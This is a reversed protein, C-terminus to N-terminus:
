GVVDPENGALKYTEKEEERLEVEVNEVIEREALGETAVRFKEIGGYKDLVHCPGNRKRRMRRLVRALDEVVPEVEEWRFGSHAWLEPPYVVEEKLRSRVLSCAAAALLSPRVCSLGWDYLTSELIFKIFCTLQPDSRYGLAKMFREAFILSTPFNVKELIKLLIDRALEGVKRRVEEQESGNVWMRSVVSELSPRDYESDLKCALFLSAASIMQINKETYTEIAMYRDMIGVGTHLVSDYIKLATATRAMWDVIYARHKETVEEQRSMSTKDVGTVVEHERLYRFIHVADPGNYGTGDPQDIKTPPPTNERDRSRKQVPGNVSDPNPDSPVPSAKRKRDVTRKPSTM